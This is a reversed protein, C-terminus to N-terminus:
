VGSTLVLYLAIAAMVSIFVEPADGHELFWRKIQRKRWEIYRARAQNQIQNTYAAQKM